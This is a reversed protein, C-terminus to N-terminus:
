IYMLTAYPFEHGIFLKATEFLMQDAFFLSAKDGDFGLIVRAPSDETARKISAVTDVMSGVKWRWRLWTYETPDLEVHQMLGFSAQAAHAHLVTEGQDSVLQYQPPKKTRLIILPPWLDPLGGALNQSFPAIRESVPSYPRINASFYLPVARHHL